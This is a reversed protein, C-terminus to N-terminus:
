CKLQGLRLAPELMLHQGNGASKSTNGVWGENSQEKGRQVFNSISASLVTSLMVSSFFAQILFQAGITPMLGRDKVLVNVIEYVM